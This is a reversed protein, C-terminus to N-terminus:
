IVELAAALAFIENDMGNCADHRCSCEKWRKSGTTRRSNAKGVKKSARVKMGLQLAPPELGVIMNGPTSLTAWKEMSMDTSGLVDRWSIEARGLLKSGVIRGIIPTTSRWRLEFVVTQQSLEKIPDAAGSCELSIHNNWYPDSTSSIEQSNLRIREGAKGVLYYRVFLTGPSIFEVNKARIINLECTLSSSLTQAESDM